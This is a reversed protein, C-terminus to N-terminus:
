LGAGREVLGRALEKRVIPPFKALGHIVTTHDQIGLYRAIAPLSLGRWRLAYMAVHRAKVLHPLRSKSRMEEVTIGHDAAVTAITDEYPTM